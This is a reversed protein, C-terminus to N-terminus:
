YSAHRSFISPGRTNKSLKVKHPLVTFSLVRFCTGSRNSLLSQTDVGLHNLPELVCPPLHPTTKITYHDLHTPQCLLANGLSM